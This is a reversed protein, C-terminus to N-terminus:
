AAPMVDQERGRAGRTARAAAILPHVPPNGRVKRLYEEGQRRWLERDNLNHMM